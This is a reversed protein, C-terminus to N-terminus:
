MEGQQKSGIVPQDPKRKREWTDPFCRLNVLASKLAEEEQRQSERSGQEKDLKHGQEGCRSGAGQERNQGGQEMSGGGEEM